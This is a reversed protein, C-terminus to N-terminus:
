QQPGPAYQQQQQHEAGGTALEPHQALYAAQSEHYAAWQAALDAQAAPDLQPQGTPQRPDHETAFIQNPAAVISNQQSSLTASPSLARHSASRQPSTSQEYPPQQANIPLPQTQSTLQPSGFQASNSQTVGQHIGPNPPSAVPVPREGSPAMSLAQMHQELPYPANQKQLRPSQSVYPEQTSTPTVAHQDPYGATPGAPPAGQYSQAPSAEFQVQSPYLWEGRLHDWVPANPDIDVTPPLYSPQTQQETHQQPYESPRQSGDLGPRGPYSDQHQPQAAQAVHASYYQQPDHRRGGPAGHPGHQGQSQHQAFYQAAAAQQANYQQMQQEYAAWQQQYVARDQESMNAMANTDMQSSQPQSGQAPGWGPRQQSQPYTPEQHYRTQSEALIKEYTSKAHDFKDHIARLELQKKNYKDLLKVVRPRLAMSQQYLEQSIWFIQTLSLELTQPTSRFRVLLEENQALDESAPNISRMMKLLNDISASQAFLQAEMEAEQALSTPLPEAIEEIYSTPFIGRRGRLEGEWWTPWTRGIIKVVDGKRMPLEDPSETEFDYLARAKSALPPAATAPRSTSEPQQESPRREDERLPESTVEQHSQYPQSTAPDRANSSSSASPYDNRPAPGRHDYAPEQPLAKRHGDRGNMHPQPESRKFGKMPDALAASEALARQLEEEEQRLVDDSPGEPSKPRDDDFKHNQSKLSEYTEVM